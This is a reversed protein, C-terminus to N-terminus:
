RGSDQPKKTEHAELGTRSIEYHRVLGEEINARQSELHPRASLRELIERAKPEASYSLANITLKSWLVGLREGKYARYRWPLNKWHAPDVGSALEPAPMGALGSIHGRMGQASILAQFTALDVEGRFRNWIFDHLIKEGHPDGIFAITTVVNSWYPKSSEDALMSELVRIADPGLVRAEQFPVGHVYSQRVFSKVIDEQNSMAGSPSALVLVTTALLLTCWLRGM